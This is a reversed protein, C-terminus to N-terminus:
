LRRYKGEETRQGTSLRGHDVDTLHFKERMKEAVEPPLINAIKQLSKRRSEIKRPPIPRDGTCAALIERKVVSAYEDPLCSLIAMMDEVTLGETKIVNEEVKKIRKKLGKM